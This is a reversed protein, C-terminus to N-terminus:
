LKYHDHSVNLDKKYYKQFKSSAILVSTEQIIKVTAM